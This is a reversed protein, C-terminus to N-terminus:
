VRIRYEDLWTYMDEHVKDLLIKIHPKYRDNVTKMMHNVTSQVSPRELGVADFLKLTTEIRRRFLLLSEEKYQRLAQYQDEVNLNMLVPSSSFKTSHVIEIGDLLVAPDRSDKIQEEYHDLKAMGEISEESITKMIFAFCPTKDSENKAMYTRRAAQLAKTDSRRYGGSLADAAEEDATPLAVEPPIYYVYDAHLLFRSLEPWKAEIASKLQDFWKRYNPSPGNEVYQLIEVGEYSPLTRPGRPGSNAAKQNAARQSRTLIPGKVPVKAPPQVTKSSSM